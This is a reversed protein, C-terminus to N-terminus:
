RRRRYLAFGLGGIGLLALSTPEPVTSIDVLLNDVNIDGGLGNAVRLEDIALDPTGMGSLDVGSTTTMTWAGTDYFYNLTVSTMGWPVASPQAGGVGAGDVGWKAQNYVDGTYIQETGSSGGTYLSVGAYGGANFNNLFLTDYTLTIEEGAGLTANLAAFLTRADGETDLSNGASIAVPGAGGNGTWGSGIDPTSGIIPTGPAQSFTDYFVPTGKCINVALASSAVLPLWVQIPQKM